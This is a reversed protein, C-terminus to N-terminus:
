VDTLRLFGEIEPLVCPAKFSHPDVLVNPIQNFAGPVQSPWLPRMSRLLITHPKPLFDLSVFFSRSRDLSERRCPLFPTIRSFCHVVGGNLSAAIRLVFRFHVM